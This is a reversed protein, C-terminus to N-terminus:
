GPHTRCTWPEAGSRPDLAVLGRRGLIRRRHQQPHFAHGHGRRFFPLAPPQQDRPPYGTRGRTGPAPRYGLAHVVPHHGTRPIDPVSAPFYIEEQLLAPQCAPVPVARLAREGLPRRLDRRPAPDGAAQQLVATSQAAFRPVILLTRGLLRRGARGAACGSHRLTLWNVTSATSTVTAFLIFPMPPSVPRQM